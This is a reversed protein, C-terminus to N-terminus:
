SIRIVLRKDTRCIKKLEHLHMRLSGALAAGRVTIVIQREGVMVGAKAKFKDQVFQRIVQSETPEEYNRQGLISAIDDAVDNM